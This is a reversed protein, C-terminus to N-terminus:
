RKKIMGLQMWVGAPLRLAESGDPPWGTYRSTNIFQTNVYDYIQIVPLQQNTVTALTGVINKQEQPTALNLRNTLEGPDIGDIKEPGGMWNGDKGPPSHSLRGALLSWGNASGYLRQFINYSSPGLAMLWFGVDFKGAALEDLYLVYDASTTVNADIGHDNLQSTISKAAAVWDSFSAPVHLEVKWPKGDPMRWTGGRKVMGAAKLELDAKAPDVKYPNLTALREGLWAKASDGHIGTTTLSPTGAEPSAIKTVQARDILYALARRVHVNDYPKHAQNFAMSAAVPSYGRRVANGPASKIRGMVAAPVATFPASDLKGSVLYNWIQENGTYNLVKVKDPVIKAADYFYPNRRLLAAGPNIRELVFPGASVDQPPAFTIVKQTLGTIEAKARDAAPGTGRAATLTAWFGAPLLKGYVHDPVVVTSLVNRLFTNSRNAGQVVKITKADVVQIDAAAGAAGANVTYASGGQTYALGISTRVDQSTVPKGDSWRADPRLHVVVEGQGPTTTWSQAIGPYFQNPDTLSNKPWALSMADYGVFTSGQPNFPNIPATADIQKAGDITTYVGGPGAPAAVQGCAATAALAALAAIAALRKM